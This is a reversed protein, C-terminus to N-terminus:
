DDRQVIRYYQDFMKTNFNVFFIINDIPLPPDFFFVFATAGFQFWVTNRKFHENHGNSLIINVHLIGIQNNCKPDTPLLSITTESRGYTNCPVTASFHMSVFVLM